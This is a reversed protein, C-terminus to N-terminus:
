VKITNQAVETCLNAFMTQVILLLCLMLMCLANISVSGKPPGM